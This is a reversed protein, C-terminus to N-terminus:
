LDKIFYSDAHEDYRIQFQRGAHREKDEKKCVPIIFDNVIEKQPDNVEVISSKSNNEEDESTQGGLAPAGSEAAMQDNDDRPLTKKCGFYTVGDYAKRYPEMNTLGHENLSIM